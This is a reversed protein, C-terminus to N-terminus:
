RWNSARDASFPLPADASSAATWAAPGSGRSTGSIL